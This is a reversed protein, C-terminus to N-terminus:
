EVILLAAKCIAEEPSDAHVMYRRHNYINDFSCVHKDDLYLINYLFNRKLMINIIEWAASIDSSYKKNSGEEFRQFGFIKEKILLDIEEGPKMALVVQRKM